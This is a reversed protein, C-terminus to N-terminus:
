GIASPWIKWIAPFKAPFIKPELWFDGNEARIGCNQPQLLSNAPFKCPIQLERGLENLVLSNRFSDPDREM